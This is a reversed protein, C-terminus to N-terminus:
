SRGSAHLVRRSFCLLASLCCFALVVLLFGLGLYALAAPTEKRHITPEEQRKRLRVAKEFDELWSVLDPSDAPPHDSIYAAAHFRCKECPLIHPLLTLLAEYHAFSGEDCAHACSKLFSWGGAGWFKPNLNSRM